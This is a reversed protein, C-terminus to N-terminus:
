YCKSIPSKLGFTSRLMFCIFNKGFTKVMASIDIKPPKFVLSHERLTKLIEPTKYIGSKSNKSCGYHYTNEM